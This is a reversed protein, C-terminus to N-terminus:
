PLIKRHQNQTLHLSSLYPVKNSLVVKESMEKRPPPQHNRSSYSNLPMTRFLTIVTIVPTIVMIFCTIVTIVPSNRRICYGGWPTYKPLSITGTIVTIMHKGITKVVTKVTIAIVRAARSLRNLKSGGLVHVQGIIVNIDKNLKENKFQPTRLLNPKAM